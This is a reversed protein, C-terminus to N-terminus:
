QVFLRVVECHTNTPSPKWKVNVKKAAMFAAMITSYYMNVDVREPLLRYYPKPLPCNEDLYFQAVGPGTLYLNSISRYGNTSQESSFVSFSSTILLIGTLFRIMMKEM